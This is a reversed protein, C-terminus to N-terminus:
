LFLRGPRFLWHADSLYTLIPGLAPLRADKERSHPNREGISTAIPPSLVARKGFWVLSDELSEQVPGLLLPYPSSLLPIM